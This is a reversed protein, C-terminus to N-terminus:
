GKGGIGEYNENKPRQTDGIEQNKNKESRVM